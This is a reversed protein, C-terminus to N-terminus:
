IDEEYFPNNMSAPVDGSACIVGEYKVELVETIPAEYLENHKEKM